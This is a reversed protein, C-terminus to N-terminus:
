RDSRLQVKCRPCYEPNFRHGLYRSCAPCRWEIMAHVGSLFFVGVGFWVMPPIQNVKGSGGTVCYYIWGGFGLLGIARSIYVRRKRENWKEFVGADSHVMKATTHGSEQWKKLASLVVVGVSYLGMWAGSFGRLDGNSMLINKSPHAHAGMFSVVNAAGYIYFGAALVKLGLPCLEYTTRIIKFGTDDSAKRVVLATPFAVLFVMFHMPFILLPSALNDVAYSALNLTVSASLGLM